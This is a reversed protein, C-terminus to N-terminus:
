EACNRSARVRSHRAALGRKNWAGSPVQATHLRLARVEEALTDVRQNVIQTADTASTNPEFVGAFHLAGMMMTAFLACTIAAVLATWGFASKWNTTMKAM